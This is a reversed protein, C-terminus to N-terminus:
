VAGSAVELGYRKFYTAEDCEWQYWEDFVLYEAPYREAFNVYENGARSMALFLASLIM